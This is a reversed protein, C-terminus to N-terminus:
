PAPSLVAEQLAEHPPYPRFSDLLARLAKVPVLRDSASPRLWHVGPPRVRDLAPLTITHPAGLCVGYDHYEWTAASGPPVLWYLWGAEPDEIVPGCGDQVEDLAAAIAHGKGRAGSIVVDFLNGGLRVRTTRSHQVDLLTRLLAALDAMDEAVEGTPGAAKILDQMVKTTRTATATM